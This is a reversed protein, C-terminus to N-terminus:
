SFIISGSYTLDQVDSKNITFAFSNGGAPVDVDILGSTNIIRDAVAKATGTKYTPESQEVEYATFADMFVIIVQPTSSASVQLKVHSTGSPLPLPYFNGESALAMLGGLENTESLFTKSFYNPAWCSVFDKPPDVSYNTGTLSTNTKGSPTVIAEYTTVDVTRTISSISCTASQTGCQATITVDGVGTITILGTSTVTAAGNSTSWVVTDTTNAPTLTATLQITSGFTPAIIATQSLTIGTCPIVEGLTVTEIKNASFNAGKIVLARSM